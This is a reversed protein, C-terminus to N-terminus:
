SLSGVCDDCSGRNSGALNPTLGDIRRSLFRREPETGARALAERYSAAAEDTRGLRRLFDARVAPLLYYHKMAPLTDLAELSALAAEPGEVMSRAIARNLAVVPSPSVALLQDYLGVLQTWNTDASSTSTAHVAAIGAQLHYESVEDGDAARELHGVGRALLAQDWQSREQEALLLLNGDGDVRAELRAAQLFFLALLAHVKPLGTDPRSALLLALRIAEGCLDARVLNEGSHAGYGENFLLYLVQLVSDLRTPIESPSPLALTIGAETIRRKARVLRQAITAYECLFARAIEPVSFGSVTKLTLAVRVEASLAPNCCAFIMALQEDQLEGADSPDAAAPSSHREQLRQELESEKRRLSAQRRLRDLARNRAVRILWAGPNEPIGQFPWQRLAQVLAEQVVDEALDLNELGFIHTLTALMQGAQHRFLHEVLEHVRPEEDM